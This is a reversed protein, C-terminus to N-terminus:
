FRLKRPHLIGKWVDRQLNRIHYMNSIPFGKSIADLLETRSEQNARKALHADKLLRSIIQGEVHCLICTFRGHKECM